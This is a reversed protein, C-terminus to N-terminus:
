SKFKTIDIFSCTCPANKCIHCNNSFMISLEKAM